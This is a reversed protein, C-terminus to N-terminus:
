EENECKWAAKTQDIEPHRLETGESLRLKDSLGGNIELVFQIGTGGPIPELSYPTTEKAIRKVTGTDDMFLIDLPIRTNKMWFSARHPAPYVFLMGRSRGLSDRNM